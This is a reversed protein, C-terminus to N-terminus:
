AAAPRAKPKAKPPLKAPPPLRIGDFYRVRLVYGDQSLGAYTFKSQPWYAEDYHKALRKNEMSVIVGICLPKEKALEQREIEDFSRNIFPISLGHNRHEPAIYNRYYYMPQRLMPVIHPYATSVGVIRGGDRAICVVQAARQAAKNPDLMAKHDIWFQALEAELQGDIAHWVPLIELAM